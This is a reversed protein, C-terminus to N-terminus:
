TISNLNKKYFIKRIVFFKIDYIKKLSIRFPLLFIDFTSLSKIIEFKSNRFNHIKKKLILDKFYKFQLNRYINNWSKHIKIFEKSQSEADAHYRGAHGLQKIYKPLFGNKTFNLLFYVLFNFKSEIKIYDKICYQYVKTHVCYNLEPLYNNCFWYYFYEIKDPAITFYFEPRWNSLFKGDEHISVASSWVLSLDHDKELTEYATELWTKSYYFDSTTMIMLYKSKVLNIGHLYGNEADCKLSILEVKDYQKFIKVSSDTSFSDVVLVKFNQFTQSKLSKILDPIYKEQNFSSIVITIKEM